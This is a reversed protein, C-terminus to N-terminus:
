TKDRKSFLSVVNGTTENTTPATLGLREKLDHKIIIQHSVCLSTLYTVLKNSPKSMLMQVLTEGQLTPAVNILSVASLLQEKPPLEPNDTLWTDVQPFLTWLVNWMAPHYGLALNAPGTRGEVIYDAIPRPSYEWGTAREIM